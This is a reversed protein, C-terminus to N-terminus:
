CAPFILTSIVIGEPMGKGFTPMGKNCFNTSNCYTTHYIHPYKMLLDFIGRWHICLTHNVYHSCLVDGHPYLICRQPQKPPPTYYMPLKSTNLYIYPRILEGSGVGQRSSAWQNWPGPAIRIFQFQTIAGFQINIKNDCTLVM